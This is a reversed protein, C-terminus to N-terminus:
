AMCWKDKGKRTYRKKNREIRMRFEPSGLAKFLKRAKRMVKRSQNHTM